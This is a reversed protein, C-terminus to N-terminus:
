HRQPPLKTKTTVAPPILPLTAPLTVQAAELLQQVAPSPIPIQAVPPQDRVLVETLCLTSLQAIGEEVTLDLASWRAHLAQILLYALMVVFAHGRTRQEHRVFIPRMELHVTKSDRFAREVLTLDKYRAHVEERTALHEKLDTKIAYCGDLKAIDALAAADQELQLQREIHTLHVWPAIRLREALTQLKRLAVEVRARPHGELYRNQADAAQSLSRYKDARSASIEAARQPNRRVIYRVGDATNVEALTTDFLAMQLVNTNLLREIQPKTIATIYHCHEANLAEIQQAKIMGRDGVFTVETQGFRQLVKEIQVIFTKPDQTNGAFVEISVPVGQGDCLLGIVIQRKGRKGDRNYGFAAFANKTGELYSSTVDYLFLGEAGARQAFLRQEIAAQQACLWDLNAYLDDEDFPTLGLITEAAHVRALRVASLRSGQDIVRAIVQWLALRGERSPGLAQEIGLQRALDYLLWVAGVAPGQRLTLSDSVTGLSSLDHKHRLALRIAAIEEASCHSLNALTRHKVRGNERYSERLLYRTYTRGQRRVTSVDVYM